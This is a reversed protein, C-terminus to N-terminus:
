REYYDLGVRRAGSGSGTGLEGFVYLRGGHDGGGGGLLRDREKRGLGEFDELM